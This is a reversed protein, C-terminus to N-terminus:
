LSRLFLKLKELYSTKDKPKKKYKGYTPTVVGSDTSTFVEKKFYKNMMPIKQKYKMIIRIEM